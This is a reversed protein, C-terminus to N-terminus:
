YNSRNLLLVSWVQGRKVPVTGNGTFDKAGTFQCPICLEGDMNIFGWLGGEQVAAFGNLFSRADEYAPELFWSGDRDIFGWRGNKKVAAYSNEYFIKVDEYTDTGVRVGEGDIMFYSGAEAAFFRGNRYAMQREDTVVEDYPGGPVPNGETDYIRWGEATKAAALGNAFSAAESFGDMLLEGSRKYYSWQRGDYVTYIEASSMAGIGLIDGEAAVSMVKNGANDIFYAKGDGDIVPAMGNNFPGAYLYSLAIWRSGRSACYGWTENRRVPTLNSSFISMEDYEGVTRFTYEVSRYMEEARESVVHRNSMTHYLGFFAAYDQLQLSLEMQFEYARAELPYEELLIEGWELAKSRNAMNDRYFEAVELYLEASPRMEIAAQYYQMAYVEIKQSAFGRAEELYRSYKREEELNDSGTKYVGLLFLVVLALPMLARYNKM